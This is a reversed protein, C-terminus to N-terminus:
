AAVGRPWEALVILRAGQEPDGDRERSLLHGMCLGVAFLDFSVSMAFWPEHGLFLAHILVVFFAAAGLPERLARRGRWLAYALGAYYLFALAFGGNLLPMLGGVLFQRGAVLDGDRPPASGEATDPFLAAGFGRGLLLDRVELTRVFPGAEVLRHAQRRAATDGVATGSPRQRLGAAQAELLWPAAAITALLALTAASEALQRRPPVGSERGATEDRRGRGPLVVLRPLVVVFVLVHLVVRLSSGLEQFVIQQCFVFLVGAFVLLATLPRRRRATLLLFPWFALAGQMGYALIFSGPADGALGGTLGQTIGTMGIASLSLGALFLGVLAPNVDQWAHRSSGLVAASVIVLYPCLDDLAATVAHGEGLWGDLFLFFALAGVGSVWLRAPPTLTGFPRRTRLGYALVAALLLAVSHTSAVQAADAAATGLYRAFFPRTLSFFQAALFAYLCSCGLASLARQSPRPAFATARWVVTAGAPATADTVLHTTM